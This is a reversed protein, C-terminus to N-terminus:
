AHQAIVKIAEPLILKGDVRQSALFGIQGNAAFLETLKKFSRGQRDAIWYYGFDGFAVTKAGAEITPMFASTKVPRGLIMDPTNATLAPQWLYEGTGLKLKRLEKITADNVIWVANKRYPTKLSYFLDIVEDAKLATASATTVGTQAGGTAALFGLPKGTGNGTFFAEEEKAGIRRAFETAIYSEMNFASDAMLEESIKIMTGLKHAGISVQGFSEDSETYAEEEDLWAATGHTAVVPIKRDGSSTRIVKALQRFINEEELAQVLTHEFEDPVLYGGESDTGEELANLIMQGPAKSRMMNWFNANYEDSARGTKVDGALMKEPKEVIPAKVPMALARDMAEAREAREIEKGLAQIDQEMKDYAADDEASLLGNEGRHSDLFAKAGEWLKARKERLQISNM